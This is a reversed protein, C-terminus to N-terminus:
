YVDVFLDFSLELYQKLQNAERPSKVTVDSLSLATDLGSNETAPVRNEVILIGESGGMEHIPGSKSPPLLSVSGGIIPVTNFELTGTVNGYAGTDETYISFDIYINM